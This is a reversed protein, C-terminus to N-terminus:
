NNHSISRGNRQYQLSECHLAYRRTMDDFFSREDGWSHMLSRQFTCFFIGFVSTCLNMFLPVANRKNLFICIIFVSVHRYFLFHANWHLLYNCFSLASFQMSTAWWIFFNHELRAAHMIARIRNAFSLSFIIYTNYKRRPSILSIKMKVSSPYRNVTEKLAHMICIICFWTRNLKDGGGGCSYHVGHDYNKFRKQVSARRQVVVNVRYCTLETFDDMEIWIKVVCRRGCWLM